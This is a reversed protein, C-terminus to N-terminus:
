GCPLVVLLTTPGGAPSIVDCTGGLGTARDRLGRLGTGREPDAGGIGDDRVEVTLRDGVRVLSVWARSAGAHRAVNTLAEAVVYYAASEVAFRPRDAVAVTVDVPVPCRAVVASLAADLGREELIAPQIGRVLDRLEGLAAKAEEHASELLVRSADPDSALRARAAGLDMALAVLRQQAGDHLDREIRRREAEAADIAAARSTEIRGVQATLADRESPGLLRCAAATSLGAMASSARPAVVVLGFLGVFSLAFAGAGPGVDFLWFKATDGPLSGVYLPLALLAASGAWTVTAVAFGLLGLPLALLAHGVERWRAGSSLRAKLRTWWSGPPLPPVADAIVVGLIEAQRSRELRAFGRASVFLLWAVPIALPFVIVLAAATVLLTFVVTFSVIGIVLGLAVHGLRFWTSAQRWPRLVEDIM